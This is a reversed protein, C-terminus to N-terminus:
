EAHFEGAEFRNNIEVLAHTITNRTVGDAVGEIQRLTNELTRIVRAYVLVRVRSDVNFLTDADSNWGGVTAANNLADGEALYQDLTMIGGDRIRRRQAEFHKPYGSDISERAQTKFEELTMTQM